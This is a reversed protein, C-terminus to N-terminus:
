PPPIAGSSLSHCLLLTGSGKACSLEPVVSLSVLYKGMLTLFVLLNGPFSWLMYLIKAAPHAKCLDGQELCVCYVPVTVERAWSSVFPGLSIDASVLASMDM